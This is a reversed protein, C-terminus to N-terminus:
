RSHWREFGEGGGHRRGKRKKGSTAQKKATAAGVAIKLREWAHKPMRSLGLSEAAAMAYVRCDLAENRVGPTLEWQYVRYGHILRPVLHEATLQRFHAEPYQSFHCYGGPFPDDPELPAEINLRGYFEEKLISVGVTWLKVGQRLKRGRVMVDVTRPPQLVVSVRDSGKILMVQRASQRRGWRYVDQTWHGGTDVGVRAIRLTAGSEHPYSRRLLDSLDRWVDAQNPSGPLVQYDVSWTEGTTEGERPAGHGVVEVELGYKQVDVGATLIVARTPVIGLPYQERRRYLIEWEPAEGKEKWTEGLDHNVWPRLENPKGKANLFREVVEAWTRWPSYLGSLHYSRHYSSREPAEPIWTGGALMKPKASEEIAKECDEAVCWLVANLGVAQPEGDDDYQCRNGDEDRGGLNKWEIKQLTGCHPCPVHYYRRDGRDFEIQIRSRGEITPTSIDLIKKRQKYTATARESLILPDGEEGVDKPYADVEDRFLFRAPMSRFGSPANAGVLALMGGPFTKTLISSSSDRAATAHIKGRLRECDQFMPDLRQKSMKKALNEAPAVLMIPAPCVDIIYGIWNNGLETAGLQAGKMITVRIVSTHVSLMDMPERWYPTRSTRYQGAEDAGIGSLVRYKDAWESVTLLPDPRIGRLFAERYAEDGREKSSDGADSIRAVLLQSLVVLFGLFGLLASM